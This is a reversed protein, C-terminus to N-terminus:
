AGTKSILTIYSGKELSGLKSSTASPASRINLRGSSVSVTGAVSNMDAAESLLPVASLFILLSCIIM